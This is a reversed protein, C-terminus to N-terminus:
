FLWDAHMSVMSQSGESVSQGIVACSVNAASYQKMVYKIDAESVELILGLEENFLKEVM